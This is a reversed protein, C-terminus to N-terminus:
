RVWHSKLVKGHSISPCKLGTNSSLFLLSGIKDVHICLSFFGCLFIILASFATFKAFFLFSSSQENYKRRFSNRTDNRLEKTSIIVNIVIRENSENMNMACIIPISFGASNTTATCNGSLFVVCECVRANPHINCCVFSFSSLSFHASGFVWPGTRNISFHKM